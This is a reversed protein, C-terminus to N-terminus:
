PKCYCDCLQQRVSASSLCVAFVDYFTDTDSVPCAKNCFFEGIENKAKFINCGEFVLKNQLTILSKM